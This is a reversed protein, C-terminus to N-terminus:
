PQGASASARRSFRRWLEDGSTQKMKMKRKKRKTERGISKKGRTWERPEDKVEGNWETETTRKGASSTPAYEFPHSPLLSRRGQAQPLSSASPAGAFAHGQM